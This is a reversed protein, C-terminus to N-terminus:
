KGAVALAEEGLIYSRVMSHKYIRVAVLQEHQHVFRVYGKRIKYVEPEETAALEYTKGDIVLRNDQLQIIGETQEVKNAALSFNDKGGAETHVKTYTFEQGFAIAPIM